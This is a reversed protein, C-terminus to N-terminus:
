TSEPLPSPVQAPLSQAPAPTDLVKTWELPWDEVAYEFCLAIQADDLGAPSVQGNAQLSGSRLLSEVRSRLEKRTRDLKRSVTAEHEGLTRGIAALTQERSITTPSDCASM